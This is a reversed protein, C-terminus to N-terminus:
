TGTSRATSSKGTQLLKGSIDELQKPSGIPGDPDGKLFQVVLPDTSKKLQDPTGRFVIRGGYLMLVEDAIRFVSPMEHTIVV